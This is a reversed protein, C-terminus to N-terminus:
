SAQLSIFIKILDCVRSIFFFHIGGTSLSMQSISEVSTVYTGFVLTTFFLISYFKLMEILVSTASDWPVDFLLDEFFISVFLSM